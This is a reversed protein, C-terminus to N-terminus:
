DVTQTSSTRRLAAYPTRDILGADAFARMREACKNCAGCHLDGQPNICSFTFELPLRAGRQMVARKQLGGFPRLICLPEGTALALTRELSSFFDDTADPFPNSGLVGLALQGIGHLQCWLGAKTILLANRGPLYVSEDATEADPIQSGTVSWHAGYLDEVPQDLVVLQALRPSALAALYREAARQEAPEWHLHSRIYIPQLTNGEELLKGLLIASDLGGSLLVGIPNSGPNAM